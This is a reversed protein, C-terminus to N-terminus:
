NDTRGEFRPASHHGDEGGQAAEGAAIAGAVGRWDLVAEDRRLREVAEQYVEIQELAALAGERYASGLPPLAAFAVRESM